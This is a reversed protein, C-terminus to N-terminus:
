PLRRVVRNSVTGKYPDLKVQVKDGVLVRIKNLRMKGSTYAKILRGDELEIEYQANPLLALVVGNALTPDQTQPPM